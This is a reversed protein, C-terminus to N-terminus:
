GNISSWMSSQTSTSVSAAAPAGPGAAAGKRPLIALDKKGTASPVVLTDGRVELKSDGLELSTPLMADTITTGLDAHNAANSMYTRYEASTLDYYHLSGDDFFVYTGAALNNTTAKRVQAWTMVPLGDSAAETAATVKASPSGTFGSLARYEGAKKATLNPSSSHGGSIAMTSRSRLRGTVTNDASDLEMTDKSSKNGVTATFPGASAAASPPGGSVPNMVKYCTEIQTSAVALGSVTPNPSSASAGNLADGCRGQVVLQVAYGPITTHPSSPDAVGTTASPVSFDSVQSLNNLSLYGFTSLNMDNSLDNLGDGGGTGDSWNFRIRFQATQAGSRLLGVVHGEEEVVTLYPENVVTQRAGAAKWTPDARLRALAYEVGSRAARHAAALDSQNVTRRLGWTGLEVSAGVFMAVMVTLLLVSIFFVGRRRLRM